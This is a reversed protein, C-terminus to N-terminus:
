RFSLSKEIENNMSAPYAKPKSIKWNIKYIAKKFGSKDTM